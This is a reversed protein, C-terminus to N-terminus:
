YAGKSFFLHPITKLILLLDKAFSRTNVYQEDLNVRDEILLNNRGSTQWICTLGPRVSLIKKSKERLYHKIEYETMPRPGVISLDGSLVNWFQPLEDLSCKRLLRGILTVRPDNKLKFYKDWEEKYQPNENLLSALKQEADIFMTRFKLCYIVRGGRGVRKCKHLVPGPSSCKVLLALIIFLPSGLLLAFSSFAVDFIRKCVMHQVPFQEDARERLKILLEKLQMKQFTKTGM